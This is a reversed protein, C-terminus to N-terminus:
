AHPGAASSSPPPQPPQPAWAPHWASHSAAPEPETLLTAWDPAHGGLLDGLMMEVSSSTASPQAFLQQQQQQQPQTQQLQQPQQQPAAHQMHPEFQPPPYPGAQHPPPATMPPYQPAHPPPIAYQQPSQYNYHAAPQQYPAPPQDAQGQQKPEAAQASGGGLELMASVASHEPPPSDARLHKRRSLISKWEEMANAMSGVLIGSTALLNGERVRAEISPASGDGHSVADHMCAEVQRMIVVLSDHRPSTSRWGVITAAQSETCSKATDVAAACMLLVPLGVTHALADGGAGRKLNGRKFPACCGLLAVLAKENTDQGQSCTTDTQTDRERRAHWERAGCRRL